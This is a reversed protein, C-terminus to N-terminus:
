RLTALASSNTLLFTGVIVIVVAVMSLALVLGKKFNKM